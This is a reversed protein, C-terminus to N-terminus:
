QRQFTKKGAPLELVLQDGALSGHVQASKGSAKWKGDLTVTGEALSYTGELDDHEAMGGAGAEVCLVFRQKGGSEFQVDLPKQGKPVTELWSGALPHKGGCAALLLCASLALRHIRM